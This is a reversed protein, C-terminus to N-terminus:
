LRRSLGSSDLGRHHLPVLFGCRLNSSAARPQSCTRRPEERHTYTKSVRTKRVRSQSSSWCSEAFVPWKLLAKKDRKSERGVVSVRGKLIEDRGPATSSYTVPLLRDPGPDNQDKFVWSIHNPNRPETLKWKNACDDSAIPCFCQGMSLLAPHADWHLPSPKKNSYIFCQSGGNTQWM